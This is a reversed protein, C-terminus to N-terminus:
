GGTPIGVLEAVESQAQVVTAAANAVSKVIFVGAILAVIAACIMTITLMRLSRRIDANVAHVLVPGLTARIERANSKDLWDGYAELVDCADAILVPDPDYQRLVIRANYLAVTPAPLTHLTM